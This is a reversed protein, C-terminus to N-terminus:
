KGQYLYDLALERAQEFTREPSTFLVTVEVGEHAPAYFTVVWPYIDSQFKRIKAFYKGSRSARSGKVGKM